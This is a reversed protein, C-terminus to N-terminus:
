RNVEQKQREREPMCIYITKSPRQNLDYKGTEIETQYQIM